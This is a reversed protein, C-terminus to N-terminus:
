VGLHLADLIFYFYRIRRGHFGTSNPNQEAFDLEVAFNNGPNNTFSSCNIRLNFINNSSLKKANISQDIMHLVNTRIVIIYVSFAAVNLFVYFSTVWYVISIKDEFDFNYYKLHNDDDGLDLGFAMVGTFPIIMLVAGSILFANRIVFRM